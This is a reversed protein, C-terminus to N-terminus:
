KTPTGGTPTLLGDTSKGQLFNDVRKKVPTNSEEYLREVAEMIETMNDPDTLKQLVEERTIKPHKRRLMLWTLMAGGEVTKLHTMAESSQMTLKSATDFAHVLLVHAQEPTLGDLSRKALAIHRDQVWREFVGFDEDRLPSLEYGEGGLKIFTPAATAEATTTM